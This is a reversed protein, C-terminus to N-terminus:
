ARGYRRAEEEAQSWPQWSSARRNRAPSPHVPFALPPSNSLRHSPCPPLLSPQESSPRKFQFRVEEIETQLDQNPKLRVGMTTWRRPSKLVAGRRACDQIYSHIGARSYTFGDEALVADVILNGSFHDLFNPRFGPLNARGDAQQEQILRRVRQSGWLEPRAEASAAIRLQLDPNPQFDLDDPTKGEPVLRNANPDETMRLDSVWM